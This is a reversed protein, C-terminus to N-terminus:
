YHLLFRCRLRKKKERNENEVTAVFRSHAIIQYKIFFRFLRRRCRRISVVWCSQVVSFHVFLNKKEYSDVFLLRRPQTFMSLSLSFFLCFAVVIRIRLLSHFLFPSFFINMEASTARCNNNNDIDNGNLRLKKKRKLNYYKEFNFALVRCAAAMHLCKTTSHLSVFRIWLRFMSLMVNVYFGQHHSVNSNDSQSRIRM